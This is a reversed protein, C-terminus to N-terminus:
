YGEGAGVLSIDDIVYSGGPTSCDFSVTLVEPEGTGSYTFTYSRTETQWPPIDGNPGGIFVLQQDRLDIHVRCYHYPQGGSISLSSTYNLTYTNGCM